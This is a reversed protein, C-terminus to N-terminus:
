STFRQRFFGSALFLNGPEVRALFREIQGGVQPMAQGIEDEPGAPATNSAVLIVCPKKELLQHLAAAVSNEDERCSLVFNTHVGVHELM